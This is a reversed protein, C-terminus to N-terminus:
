GPSRLRIHRADPSAVRPPTQTRTARLVDLGMLLMAALPGAMAAVAATTLVGFPLLFLLGMVVVGVVWGVLVTQQRNLAILASQLVNAVLMLLTGLALEGLFVRSLGIPAGMVVRLLWPGIAVTVLVGLVGAGVCAAVLGAAARRVAGMDGRAADASLKPLLPAQLPFLVLLALRTLGIAATVSIVLGAEARSSLRANIFLPVAYVLVQGALVGGTLRALRKAAQNASEPEKDVDETPSYKDTLPARAVVLGAAAAIVFGVCFVFGFGWTSDFGAVVLVIAPLVRGLGEVVMTIAYSRFQRRGTLVGRVVFAASLGVLGLLLELFVIWNGYLWKHVVFPSGACLVAMTGGTVWAANRVQHRVVPGEPQGLALALSVARTTEQEFGAFMGTGIASLLLYLGPLPAIEVSPLGSHNVTSIFGSGAVASLGLGVALLLLPGRCLGLLREVPGSTPASAIAM